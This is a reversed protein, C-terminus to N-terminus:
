RREKPPPLWADLGCGRCSTLWSVWASSRGDEKMDYMSLFLSRINDIEDAVKRNLPRHDRLDVALEAGQEIPDIPRGHLLLPEGGRGAPM